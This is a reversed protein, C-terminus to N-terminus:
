EQEDPNFVTKVGNEDVKIGQVAEMKMKRKYLSSNKDKVIGLMKYEKDLEHMNFTFLLVLVLWGTYLFTYLSVDSFGFTFVSMIFLLAVFGLFFSVLYRAVVLRRYTYLNLAWALQLGLVVLFLLNIFMSYRSVQAFRYWCWALLFSLFAFIVTITIGDPMWDPKYLQNFWSKSNPDLTVKLIALACVVMVAVVIFLRIIFSMSTLISFWNTEGPALKNLEEIQQKKILEDNQGDAIVAAFTEGM